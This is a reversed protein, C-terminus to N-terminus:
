EVTVSKALNRPQDVDTGKLVATHYALLQLPIAYLIPMVFAHCAPLTLRSFTKGKFKEQGQPDSLLIVKGQRAIVEQVNAITKDYLRNFPALAVVPMNEDILAIPGHKMEGAAYAEAHIYSLEKLKLAGELALAYATGRGLFLVDRAKVILSALEKIEEDLSLLTRSAMPLELLAQILQQQTSASITRRMQGLFICLSALVMLQAVFAKTSAVGIEPGAHIELVEDCHRALSSEPVNVIAITQGHAKAYHMAALTDATEGSQSIFVAIGNKSLPPAGYRFESAIEVMVPIRVYEEIWYKAILGAYFSTGCAVIHLPSEWNVDALTFPLEISHSLHNLYSHLVDGMVSPQEYIEKQMFHRYDAKGIAAGTLQTKQVTRTVQHQDKDFFTVKGTEILAYDGEELYCINQALPALALADSGVFLEEGEKGVALPSGQRTCIMLDPNQPFIIAIAFAGNLRPLAKFVAEQPGLGKNLYSTILHVVVETDTESTFIHGQAELESKLAEYNEIIGNHVLAVQDTAHPHANIENPAGHTAWRTHAIGIDGRLPQAKLVEELQNIKGKARRRQIQNNEITAIGASDYGRYELRKLALLLDPVVNKKGMIGVIGCM